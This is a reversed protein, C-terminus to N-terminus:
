TIPINLKVLLDKTNKTMESTVWNGNIKVRRVEKLIEFIDSPSYRKILEHKTLLQYVIYYWQLAIFNIFMWGNFAQEDQMYSTDAELTNKFADIMTEINGRIKYFAYNDEASKDPINSYLAITGFSVHKEKYKEITYEEPHSKIRSLYDHEEKAKLSQDFFLTVTKNNTKTSKHWIFRGRYPFYGDFGANAAITVPSYDIMPNNRRLPIIYQSQVSDLTQINDESYFGKDAIIIAQDAQSEELTLRFASVERINGPLVRYFVPLQIGLSFLFMINVQPEYVQKSNYGVHAIDMKKSHTILNTADILVMDKRKFFSGMFSVTQERSVGIKKYLARVRKEALSVDTYHESLFSYTFYFNINKIPAQYLLRVLALSVIEQWFDPFFPKLQEIYDKFLHHILFFMGYEKVQIPGEARVRFAKRLKEKDSEFFGDPTIKGLLKGTIKQSRKKEPNWKSTVQYLYYTGNILRLETGKQRHQLAWAPYPSKASKKM